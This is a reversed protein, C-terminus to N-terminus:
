VAYILIFIELKMDNIRIEIDELVKLLDAYDVIIMDPVIGNIISKDVHAQIQSISLTGAPAYEIVLNGPLKSICSKVEDIHYKLNQFAIGTQFADFRKGTYNEYLELTYYFVTKGNKVATGAINVLSWSKGGGPGAVLIGLEGSGLGNGCIDNIVDWGTAITNRDEEQYRADVESKYDYYTFKETGAKDAKSFREKIEDFKDEELLPISDEIASRWEQNRCFTLSEDKIYALDPSGVSDFVDKLHQIVNAKLVENEIKQVHIKFVDKTPAVNYKDYHLKICELLNKNAESEFYKPLLIDNIQQYYIKDTLIASLLKIQFGYGYKSFNNKM